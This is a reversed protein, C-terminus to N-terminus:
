TRSLPRPATGRMFLGAVIGLTLATFALGMPNEKGFDEVRKAIVQLDFGQVLREVDEKVRSTAEHIKSDIEDLEPQITESENAM